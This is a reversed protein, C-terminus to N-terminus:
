NWWKMDSCFGSTQFSHSLQIETLTRSLQFEYLKQSNLNTYSHVSSSFFIFFYCTVHMLNIQLHFFQWGCCMENNYWKICSTLPSEFFFDNKACCTSLKWMVSCHHQNTLFFHLLQTQWLPKKKFFISPLYCFCTVNSNWIMFDYRHYM